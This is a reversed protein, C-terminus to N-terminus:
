MEPIKSVRRGTLKSILLPVSATSTKDLCYYNRLEQIFIQPNFSTMGVDREADIVLKLRQAVWVM